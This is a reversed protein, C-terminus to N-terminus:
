RAHPIELIVSAAVKETTKVAFQISSPNYKILEDSVLKNGLIKTLREKLSPSKDNEIKKLIDNIDLEEKSYLVVIYDKGPLNDLRFYHAEDPFAIKDSNYVLAVSINDKEPFIKYCKSNADFNFVYVFAPDNCSLHARFDTGAPYAPTTYVGNNLQVRMTEGDPLTVKLSGSLGVESTKMDLDFIEYAYRTFEAFDAYRIWIFGDNGWHKGWSNMVEFAGGYKNDDYGIVCIAQGGWISPNSLAGKPHWFEKADRFNTPAVMAAIVPMGSSVSKKLARIKFEAEDTVNFLRTYGSIKNEAALKYVNDPIEDACFCAFDKFKPAGKEKLVRLISELNTGESCDKDNKSKALYYAFCPSFANATILELDTWHNARAELITRAAWVSAWASSTSFVLQNAPRPCYKKLSYTSPINEYEGRILECKRREKHYSDDNFSVDKTLNQANAIFSFFLFILVAIVPKNQRSYLTVAQNM